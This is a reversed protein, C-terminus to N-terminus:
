RQMLAGYVPLLKKFESVCWNVLGAQIIAEPPYDLWASFSKHRLLDGFEHDKAYGSPVRKLEPEMFRAGGAKLGNLMKVIKAGENSVIRTRFQELHAKDFGFNGCGLSLRESDVGFFWMPPSAGAIDPTFSIHLHANYPTKDKSFRVDRYVRFVKAINLHGTVESLALSLEASFDTAPQKYVTEFSQKHAAFWERNNNARLDNLFSLTEPGFADFSSTKM